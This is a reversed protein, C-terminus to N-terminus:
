GTTLTTTNPCSLYFCICVTEELEVTKCRLAKKANDRKGNAVAPEGKAKTLAEECIGEEERRRTEVAELEALRYVRLHMQYSM